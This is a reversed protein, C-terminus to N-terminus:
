KKIEIWTGTEKSIRYNKIGANDLCKTLYPVSTVEDWNIIAERHRPRAWKFFEELDKQPMLRSSGGGIYAVGGPRMVRYVERLSQVHDKWFFVSGRSVVLHFYSDLFPMQEVAAKIISVRLQLGSEESSTRAIELSEEKIDLLYLQLNTRKALELGMNGQGTGIDLCRGQIIGYDQIIQQALFEYIEKNVPM